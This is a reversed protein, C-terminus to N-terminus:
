LAADIAERLEEDDPATKSGFHTVSGTKANVLYKNFNWGPEETQEALWAFYANAKEGTVETQALMPFTVGYNTYCITAAEEESKAAQKFDDSAFGVVVLGQERYQQYLAELGKFQPTFGCHSATNVVLASKGQLLECLNATESSHLKRYEGQLYEPCEDASATTAFGALALLLILSRM